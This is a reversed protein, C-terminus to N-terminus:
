AARQRGLYISSVFGVERTKGTHHKTKLEKNLSHRSETQLLGNDKKVAEQDRNATILAQLQSKATIRRYASAIAEADTDSYDYFLQRDQEELVAAIALSITKKRSTSGVISYGELGRMCYKSETTVKDKEAKKLLHFCRTTIDHMEDSNYWMSSIESPSYSNAFLKCKVAPNFSVRRKRTDELTFNATDMIDYHAPPRTWIPATTWNQSCM